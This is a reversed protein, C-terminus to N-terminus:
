LLRYIEWRSTGSVVHPELEKGWQKHEPLAALQDWTQNLEGLNEVLHETQVTAELAGVSGTLLRTRDATLGVKPGIERLWRQMMDVVAQKDGFKADISWRAVMM